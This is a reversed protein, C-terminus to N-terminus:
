EDSACLNNYLLSLDSVREGNILPENEARSENLLIRPWYTGSTENVEKFKVDLDALQSTLTACSLDNKSIVTNEVNDYSKCAALFVVSLVILIFGKM